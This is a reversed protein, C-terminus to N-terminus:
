MAIINKLEIVKNKGKEELLQSWHKGIVQYFADNKKLDKFFERLGDKEKKELNARALEVNTEIIAREPQEVKESFEKAIKGIKDWVDSTGGVDINVDFILEELSNFGTGYAEIAVNDKDKLEKVDDQAKELASQDVVVFYEKSRALPVTAILERLVHPISPGRLPLVGVDELIKNWFIKDSRGEVFVMKRPLEYINLGLEALIRKEVLEDGVTDDWQFIKSPEKPNRLVFYVDVYEPHKMLASYIIPSHTTMVIKMHKRLEENKQLANILAEVLKSQRSIHLGEEIEDILFMILWNKKKKHKEALIGLIYLICEKKAGTALNSTLFLNMDKLYKEEFEGGEIDCILRDEDKPFITLIKRQYEAKRATGQISKLQNSFEQGVLKVFFDSVVTDPNLYLLELHELQNTYGEHQFSPPSATISSTMEALKIKGRDSHRLIRMLVAGEKQDHSIINTPNLREPYSVESPVKALSKTTRDTFILDYLSAYIEEAKTSAIKISKTFSSDKKLKHSNEVFLALGILMAELLNTKGEGNPGAIVTIPKTIELSIPAGFYSKFNSIWFEVVLDYRNIANM